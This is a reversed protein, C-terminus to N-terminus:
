PPFLPSPQSRLQPQATWHELAEQITSASALTGSSGRSCPLWLKLGAMNLPCRFNNLEWESGISTGQVGTMVPSATKFALCPVTSSM